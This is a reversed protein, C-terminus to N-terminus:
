RGELENVRDRLKKVEAMLMYMLSRDDVSLYGSKKDASVADPFLKQVEQAIVGVSKVKSDKYNFEKISLDLVSTTPEYSEINEKLREDSSTYLKACYLDAFASTSGTGKMFKYNSITYGTQKAGTESMTAYGVYLDSVSAGAKFNLENSDTVGFEKLYINGDGTLSTSNVTKLTPTTDIDGSGYISQGNVTKVNGTTLINKYGTSNTASLRLNRTAPDMSLSVVVPSASDSSAFDIKTDSINIYDYMSTLQVKITGLRVKNTIQWGGFDVSDSYTMQSIAGQYVTDGSGALILYIDIIYAPTGGGSNAIRARPILVYNFPEVGANVLHDTNNYILKAANNLTGQPPVYAYCPKGAAYVIAPLQNWTTSATVLTNLDVCELAVSGGSGVEQVNGDKDIYTSVNSDLM